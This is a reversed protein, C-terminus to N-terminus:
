ITLITNVHMCSHDLTQHKNIHKKKKLRKEDLPFLLFVGEQVRVKGAEPITISGIIQIGVPHRDQPLQDIIQQETTVIIEQYDQEL